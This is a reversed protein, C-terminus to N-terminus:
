RRRTNRAQHTELFDQILEQARLTSDSRLYHPRWRRYEKLLWAARSRILSDVPTIQQGKPIAYVFNGETSEFTPIRFFDRKVHQGSRDSERAAQVFFDVAHDPYGFLYGYGRLRDYKNGYENATIVVASHAGPVLGFQSFFPPHAQLLSDLTITRVVSVQISRTDNYPTAYPVLLVDLGDIDITNIAHQLRSTKALHCCFIATDSQANPFGAASDSLTSIPVSFSVLSSVPKLDGLLTYLAENDLGVQLISDALLYTDESRTQTSNTPQYTTKCSLLLVVSVLIPSLIKFLSM